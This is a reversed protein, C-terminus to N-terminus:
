QGSTVASLSVVLASSASNTVTESTTTNRATATADQSPQMIPLARSLTSSTSESFPSSPPTFDHSIPSSPVTLDNFPIDMADEDDLQLRLKKCFDLSTADRPPFESKQSVARREELQIPNVTKKSKGKVKEVSLEVSPQREPTQSDDKDLGVLEEVVFQVRDPRDMHAELYAQVLEANIVPEPVPGILRLVLETDRQLAELKSNIPDETLDPNIHVAATPGLVPIGESKSNNNLEDNIPVTAAGEEILEMEVVALYTSAELDGLGHGNELTEAAKESGSVDVKENRNEVGQNSVSAELQSFNLECFSDQSPLSEFAKIEGVHNMNSDSEDIYFGEDTGEKRRLGLVTILEEREKVQMNYVSELSEGISIALQHFLQIEDNENILAM